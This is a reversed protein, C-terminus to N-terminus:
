DTLLTRAFKEADRAQSPVGGSLKRRITAIVAQKEEDSHDGPMALVVLQSVQRGSVGSGWAVPDALTLLM